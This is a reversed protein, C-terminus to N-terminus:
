QFLWKVLNATFPQPLQEIGNADGMFFIRSHPHHLIGMAAYGQGATASSVHGLITMSSRDPHIIVSGAIFPLSSVGTNIAHNSFPTIMGTVSGTFNLGLHASLGDNPSNQLHDSLILLASPYSIFSDYAAIEQASYNFFASPRIIKKYNKIEAWTVTAGRPLEHVTYGLLRLYDALAKGQHPLGASYTGYQPFWWIGGDKSADVLISMDPESGPPNNAPTSTQTPQTTPTAPNINTNSGEIHEEPKSCSLFLSLILVAATLKVPM